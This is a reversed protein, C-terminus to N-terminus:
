WTSPASPRVTRWPRAFDVTRVTQAISGNSSSLCPMSRNQEQFWQAYSLYFQLSLPEVDTPSLGQIELFKEITHIGLPDIHVDSRTRLYMGAPMNVKWFDMPKGVVVHDIGLHRAYAAMALGYPGAGIIM